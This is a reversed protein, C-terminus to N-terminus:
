YVWYCVDFMYEDGCVGFYRCGFQDQILQWVLNGYSFYFGVIFVYQLYGVDVFLKLVNNLGGVIWDLVGIQKLLLLLLLMFLLIMYM